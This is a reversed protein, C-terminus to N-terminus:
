MRSIWFYAWVPSPGSPWLKGSGHFCNGASSVAQLWNALDKRKLWWIFHNLIRTWEARLRRPVTLSTWFFFSFFFFYSVAGAGGWMWHVEIWYETELGPPKWIREKLLVVPPVCAGVLASLMNTTWIMWQFTMENEVLYSIGRSFCLLSSSTFPIMRQPDINWDFSLYGTRKM